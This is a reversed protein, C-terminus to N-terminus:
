NGPPPGLQEMLEAMEREDADASGRFREVVAARDEPRRNQNLKLKGELREVAIEFAVLGPAIRAAYDGVQEVTWPAKAGSEFGATLERVHEMAAADDLIRAPGSAHVVVYNWTPVNPSTRYFRPSVYGHPGHFVATLTAGAEALRAMPNGRAVHAVLSLQEDKVLVPLHAIEPAGDRVGVVTAFPHRRMLSFLLGRDTSRFAAPLYMYAQIILQPPHIRVMM